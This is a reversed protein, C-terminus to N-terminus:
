ISTFLWWAQIVSYPNKFTMSPGRSCCSYMIICAYFTGIPLQVSIYTVTGKSEPHLQTQELIQEGCRPKLSAFRMPSYLVLLKLVWVPAVRYSAVWRPFNPFIMSEFHRTHPSINNSGPPYYIHYETITNINSFM